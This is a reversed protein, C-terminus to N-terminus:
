FQSSVLGVICRARGDMWGVLARVGVPKGVDLVVVCGVGDYTLAHVVSETTDDSSATLCRRLTLLIDCLCLSFSVIFIM